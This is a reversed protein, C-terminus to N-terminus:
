RRHPITHPLLYRDAEISNWLFTAATSRFKEILTNILHGLYRSEQEREEEERRNMSGMVM